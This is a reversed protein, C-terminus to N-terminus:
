AIGGGRMCSNGLKGKNAAKCRAKARSCAGQGAATHCRAAERGACRAMGCAKGHAEGRVSPTAAYSARSRMLWFSKDCVPASSAAPATVCAKGAAAGANDEGADAAGADAAGADAEGADADGADGEAADAKGVDAAGADNEVADADGAVADGAGAEGMVTKEADAAPTDVTAADAEGAGV